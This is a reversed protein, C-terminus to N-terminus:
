GIRGSGTSPGEVLEPWPPTGQYRMALDLFDIKLGDVRLPSWGCASMPLISGSPATVRTSSAATPRRGGCLPTSPSTPTRTATRGWFCPAVWLVVGAGLARVRRIHALLDPFKDTDPVWDGCCQYGRGVALQKWGDDIFVSGCGMPVALAAESEIVEANVDQIFTYWTSYVPEIALPPVALGPEVIRRSMWAALRQVVEALPGTTADLVLELRREETAAAAHLEVAFTKHEESVGYRITVEDVPEDAAWGFLVRGGANYLAGMRASSVLSSVARGAWDPLLSRMSGQSPHWYGVADNLEVEIRLSLEAARPATLTVPVGVQDAPETILQTDPGPHLLSLHPLVTAPDRTV